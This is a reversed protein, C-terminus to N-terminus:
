HADRMAGATSPMESTNSPSAFASNGPTLRGSLLQEADTRLLWYEKLQEVYRAATEVQDRKAQLLQFVGILMANYKLQTEEVIKAKLPLLTSEYYLVADRAAGLRTATARANSRVRVALDAYTEIQKRKQARAVAVDAQGQYLLPVEIEVAPGVGWSEEREASVGAKLEPLLGRARAFNERQAAAAYRQESIRLELSRKVASSELANVALEEAPPKAMRGSTSWRDANGFVGLVTNLHERAAALHASARQETLRAEEYLSSESALELDTINGADHLRQAAEASAALARSVTKRLELADLAAQYEYYARKADFTLDLIAGISALRTAAVQAEAARSRVSLLLFSSLDILAGVELDTGGHRHYRLAGELTPNPLRRARSLEANAISLDELSARLGRNNLVAIRAASDPTIPARLLAKVDNSEPALSRAPLRAQAASRLEAYDVAAPSCAASVILSLASLMGPITIRPFRRVSM